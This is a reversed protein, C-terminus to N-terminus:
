TVRFRKTFDGHSKAVQDVKKKATITENEIQNFMFFFHSISFSM